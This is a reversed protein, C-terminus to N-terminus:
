RRILTSATAVQAVQGVIIAAVVVEESQERVQPSMDAGANGFFNVADVLGQAVAGIVPVSAFEEDLQIDDIQAVAYLADLAQEYKPSGPEATKFTELATTVLLEAQATTLESPSIELLETIPTQTPLPTEPTPSPLVPEVTPPTTPSPTLSPTTTPSPVTPTVEPTATPTQTPTPTSSPTGTSTPSSTPSNTPTPTPSDTPTPPTETDSPTPTPTPSPSPPTPVFISTEPSFESYIALSDNDSRIQFYYTTDFGGTLEFLEVSLYVNTEPSAVAWGIEPLHEARFFIAYREVQTGSLSPEPANWLIELNGNPLLNLTPASPANLYDINEYQVIVSLRKYTGVCPDGFVDNTAPISFSNNGLAVQEIIQQSSEAHCNPDIQYDIPTGYSAFSVSTIIANPNSLTVTLTENEYVTANVYHLQSASAYDTTFIIPAFAITLSAIIRFNTSFKNM